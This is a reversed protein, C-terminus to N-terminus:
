EKNMTTQAELVVNHMIIPPILTVTVDYPLTVTVVIPTGRIASAPDPTTTVVIGTPSALMNQMYNSVSISITEASAGQTVALRAGLRSADILANQIYLAWGIEISGIVLILFIPVIVAFELAATGRKRIKLCTFFM